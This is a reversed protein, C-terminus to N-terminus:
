FCDKWAGAEFCRFKNTQNSYYIMGNVGAPDGSLAGIKIPGSIDLKAQPASNGVGVNGGAALFFRNDAVGTEVFNLGGNKHNLHWKTVGDNRRLAIWESNTGAGKITLPKDASNTRIGVNMNLDTPFITTMMTVKSSWISWLGQGSQGYAVLFSGFVISLALVASSFFIGKFFKGIHKM